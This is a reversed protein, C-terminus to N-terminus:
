TGRSSGGHLPVDRSVSRSCRLFRGFVGDRVAYRSCVRVRAEERVCIGRFRSFAGISVPLLVPCLLQLAAFSAYALEGLLSHTPHVLYLVEHNGKSADPFIVSMGSSETDSANSANIIIKLAWLSRGRKKSSTSEVFSGKLSRSATWVRSGKM